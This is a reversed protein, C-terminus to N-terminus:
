GERPLDAVLVANTFNREAESMHRFRKIPDPQLMRQLVRDLPELDGQFDPLRLPRYVGDAKARMLTFASDRVSGFPFNGRTLVEYAVLAAAYQDGKLMDRGATNMAEPPMYMLTGPVRDTATLTRALEDGQVTSRAIGFDGLKVHTRGEPPARVLFLNAPKLDRHAVGQATLYAVAQFLQSAVALRSALPLQDLRSAVADQCREMSYWLLVKRGGDLVIADRKYVTVVYECTRARSLLDFERRFREAVKGPDEGLPDTVCVKLAVRVGMDLDLAEFVAGQGGQGLQKLQSFRPLFGELTARDM